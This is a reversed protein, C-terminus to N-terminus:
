GGGVLTVIELQDDPQLVCESHRTRPVLERNREIAVFRPQLGLQEVLQALTLGEAVPKSEGNITINLAPVKSPSELPHAPHVSRGM